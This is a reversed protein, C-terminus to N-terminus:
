RCHAATLQAVFRWQMGDVFGPDRDDGEGYQVAVIEVGEIGHIEARGVVQMETHSTCTKEPFDYMAWNLKEGLRPVILWGQVEEWRCSFAPEAMPQISYEPIMKPLKGMITEGKRERPPYPYHTKFRNKAHHLRSKVTGLPIGLKSAIEQQTLEQWFYLELMERDQRSMGQMVDQVVSQVMLGHRGYVLELESVEEISVTDLRTARFHDNCKNRAISLIWSKFASRAKLQGFNRYASLCIEQVLDEAERTGVRFKVYRDLAPFCGQLLEEFDVM